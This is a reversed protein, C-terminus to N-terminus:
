IEGTRFREILQETETKFEPIDNGAERLVRIASDPNGARYYAAALSVRAEVDNPAMEVRENMISILLEFSETEVFAQAMVDSNIFFKKFDPDKNLAEDGALETYLASDGAYLAGLAYYLRADAFSPALRYAESFYTLAEEYRNMQVSAFGQEIKIQPKGPSLEAATSLERLAKDPEGTARYFSALIVHLRADGPKETIMNQYDAEIESLYEQKEATTLGEVRYIGYGQGAMQEVIEQQAFSDRGLASQFEGMRVEINRTQLADIIDKAALIGPVNVFYIIFVGAIVVAPTVMTSLKDRDIKFNEFFAIPAGVRGHIYALILAYFIYSVINDFVVLNHTFYGVLIGLLVARELVSFNENKDKSFHPRWLLYYLAGFLIGFYAVFGLIGGAILWDFFINHVRDFWQEQAYLSPDYEKNFVYNFSGQGWGLIPREKFGEVAMGWITSRVVLDKELDISAIRNLSDNERVFTSDKFTFFLGAALVLLAVSAIAVKRMEPYSRAFIALYTVTVGLGTVLGIFTGRTGTELLVYVFLLGVLAYVGRWVWEKREIAVLMLIFIHFLMYVAMYAANGLTSQVRGTEDFLGSLGVYAAVALTTHLFYNWLKPTRIAHAVLLFYGFFHVLTVYGDMREFNSWFSKPAYESLLNAFFMVVLLGAGSALIWSFRPRYSTDYLMLLLWSLLGIEVLIRFAFNKGTIYPFFMSDAVLIPILLVAFVSGFLVVQWFDKM